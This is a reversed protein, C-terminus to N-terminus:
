RVLIDHIGGFATSSDKGRKSKRISIIDYISDYVAAPTSISDYVAAPTSISDYVAALTSISDYVAAPTSISDYVAAQTSISDYVAAPTSISDYVAALTSRLFTLGTTCGATHPAQARTYTDCEMIEIKPLTSEWRHKVRIKCGRAYAPRCDTEPL